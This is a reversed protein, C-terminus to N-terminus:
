AVGPPEGDLDPFHTQLCGPCIGHSFEVASHARVYAEVENWYNADDRVRKCYACIPLLGSLLRVRQLAVALGAAMRRLELVVVVQRALAKLANLQSPSLTRPKNDIVCLAGLGHGHPTTLPAGAYFRIHPEGTVLPNDAFRPDSPADTVVLPDTGHIAYACFAADRSTEHPALGIRAKFWQRDEDVLTILAIPTDCIHTALAVLDDYAQERGTDLVQYDHLAQLREAESLPRPARPMRPDQAMTATV